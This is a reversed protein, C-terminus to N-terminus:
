HFRRIEIVTRGKKSLGGIRSLELKGSGRLTIRAGEAVSRDPKLCEVGDVAVKGMRIASAAKERALSFGEGVIADLRLSAVTGRLLRFPADAPEAQEVEILKLPTRGAMTLERLAFDRLERLLVIDCEGPRVVLDGVTDRELGLGMLAGLVDRHSLAADSRFSARLVAVPCASGRLLEADEQWAAPLVLTVREAEPYGGWLLFRVDLERLLPQICLVDRPTLFRTSQPLGTRLWAHYKDLVRALLLEDEASRAYKQLLARRHDQNLM